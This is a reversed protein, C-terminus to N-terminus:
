SGGSWQRDDILFRDRLFREKSLSLELFELFTWFGISFGFEGIKGGEEFSARTECDDFVM